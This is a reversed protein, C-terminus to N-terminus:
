YRGVLPPYSKYSNMCPGPNIANHAGVYDYVSPLLFTVAWIGYAAMTASLDSGLTARDEVVANGLICCFAPAEFRYIWSIQKV